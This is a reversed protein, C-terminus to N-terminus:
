PYAPEFHRDFVDPDVIEFDGTDYSVVIDGPVGSQSWRGAHLDIGGLKNPEFSGDLIGSVIWIPIDENNEVGPQPIVWFEITQNKVRTTM